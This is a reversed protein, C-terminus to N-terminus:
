SSRFASMRRRLMSVSPTTWNSSKITLRGSTSQNSTAPLLAVLSRSRVAGLWVGTGYSLDDLLGMAVLRPDTERETATREIIAMALWRAAVRRTPPLAIGVALLPWWARTGLRAVTRAAWLTGTTTLRLAEMSADSLTGLKPVLARTTAAHVLTAPLAHGGLALALVTLTWGSSRLPAVAAGHRRALPGAASGYGVRQRAFAAITSRSPHTATSSPVYRVSGVTRLRWILDVDEGFRLSPDFPGVERLGDHRVLLCATPLYSVPAGPRVPSPRPGLDLPSHDLEYRDLVGLHDDVRRAPRALIRPGAAVVADDGFHGLLEDIAAEDIVVGADLFLVLPTELLGLGRNRSAAPGINTENRVIRVPASAHPPAVIPTPSGDDVVVVLAVSPLSGLSREVGEQDDHVPMIVTLESARPAVGAPVPHAMARDILRRALQARASQNGVPEGRFLSRATTAGGDTLRIIGMPSGGILTRGGDKSRLAHDPEITWEAPMSPHRAAGVTPGNM